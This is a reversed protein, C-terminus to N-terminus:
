QKNQCRIPTSLIYKMAVFMQEATYQFLVGLRVCFDAADPLRQRNGHMRYNLYRHRTRPSLYGVHLVVTYAASIGASEDACFTLLFSQM